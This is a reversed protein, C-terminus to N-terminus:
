WHGEQNPKGGPHPRNFLARGGPISGPVDVKVPDREALQVVPSLILDEEIEAHCNSCVLICKKAEELLKNLSKGSNIGKSISFSKAKRDEHHFELAWLSKSYGCKM